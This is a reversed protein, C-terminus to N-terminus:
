SSRGSIVYRGRVGSRYGPPHPAFGRERNSYERPWFRNKHQQCRAIGMECLSERWEYKIFTKSAARREANFQVSYSPAYREDGFGTGPAAKDSQASERESRAASDGRRSQGNATPHDYYRPAPAARDRFAAVAVVGMASYDGFAGAYSNLDNTFFFENVRDRGTRWGRYTATAYPGLVYMREKSRLRSKKGSVINRGDIAIVLGIRQGSTNTVRVAYRAGPVAELYARQENTRSQRHIPYDAFSRGYEDVVKVDVLGHSRHWDQASAAQASLLMIFLPIFKRM